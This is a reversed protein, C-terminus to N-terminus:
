ENRRTALLAAAILAVVRRHRVSAPRATKPTAATTVVTTPGDSGDDSGDDGDDTGDDGDDDGDDGDTVNGDDGDDGDTVNGDDGDDGDTVNGDDGDDTGDDVAEIVTGDVSPNEDLGTQRVTFTYEDGVSTDSFDFETM